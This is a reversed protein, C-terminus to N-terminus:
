RRVRRGLQEGAEVLSAAVAAIAVDASLVAPAPSVLSLAVTRAAGAPLRVVDVGLARTFQAALLRPVRAVLDTRAVVCMASLMDSVFHTSPHLSTSPREGADGGVEVGERQEFDETMQRRGTPRRRAPRRIVGVLEDRLIITAGGTERRGASWGLTFDASPDEAQKGSSLRVVNLRVGATHRHLIGAAAPLVVCQAYQNAAITVVRLAVAPESTTQLASQLQDLAARVPAAMAQARPTPSMGRGTSRFLPDGVVHRLRALAHSFAPQSLGLRCAARSVSGETHLADFVVLLNLDIAALPETTNV